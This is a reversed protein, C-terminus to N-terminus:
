EVANKKGSVKKMLKSWLHRYPEKPESAVPPLRLVRHLGPHMLVLNQFLGCVSSTVWYLVVCQLLLLNETKTTKVEVNRERELQVGECKNFQSYDSYCLLAELIHTSNYFNTSEDAIVQTSWCKSFTCNSCYSDHGCM